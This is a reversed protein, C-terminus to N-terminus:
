RNTRNARIALGAFLAACAFDVIIATKKRGKKYLYLSAGQQVATLAVKRAVNLSGDPRRLFPNGEIGRGEM